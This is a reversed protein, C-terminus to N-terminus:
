TDNKAYHVFWHLPTEIRPEKTGMALLVRRVPDYDVIELFDEKNLEKGISNILIRKGYRQSIIINSLGQKRLRNDVGVADAILPCHSEDKSVYFTQFYNSPLNKDVMFLIYVINNKIKKEAM